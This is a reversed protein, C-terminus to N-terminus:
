NIRSLNARPCSISSLNNKGEFLLSRDVTSMMWSQGAARSVEPSTLRTPRYLAGRSTENSAIMSRHRPQMWGDFSHPTGLRGTGGDDGEIQIGEGGVAVFLAVVRGNGFRGAKGVSPREVAKQFAAAAM